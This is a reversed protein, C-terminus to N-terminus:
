GKVAARLARQFRASACYENPDDSDEPCRGLRNTVSAHVEPCPFEGVFWEAVARLGDREAKVRALDTHVACWEEHRSATAESDAKDRDELEATARALDLRLADCTEDRRTKIRDQEELRAAHARQWGKMEVRLADLDTALVTNERIREMLSKFHMTCESRARDRERESEAVEARLRENEATLAALKERLESRLQEATPLSMDDTM